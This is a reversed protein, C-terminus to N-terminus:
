LSVKLAISNTGSGSEEISYTGTGSSTLASSSYGFSFESLITSSVLSLVFCITSFSSDIGDSTNSIAVGILYGISSYSPPSTEM